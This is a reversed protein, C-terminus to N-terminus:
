NNYLNKPSYVIYISSQNLFINPSDYSEESNKSIKYKKDVKEM